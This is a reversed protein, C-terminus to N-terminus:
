YFVNSTQKNTQLGLSVGCALTRLSSLYKNLRPRNSSSRLVSPARKLISRVYLAHQRSIFLCVHLFNFFFLCLLVFVSSFQCSASKCAHCTIDVLVWNLTKIPKMGKAFLIYQRMMSHTIRRQQSSYWQENLKFWRFTSFHVFMGFIGTLINRKM